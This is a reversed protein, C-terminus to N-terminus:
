GRHAMARQKSLHHITHGPHNRKARINLGDKPV